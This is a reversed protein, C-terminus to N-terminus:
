YEYDDPLTYYTGYETSYGEYNDAIYKAESSSIYNEVPKDGGHSSWYKKKGTGVVKGINKDIYKTAYNAAKELSDIETFNTFGTSDFYKINYVQRGKDDKVLKGTKPNRATRIEDQMNSLDFLCHWHILGASKEGENHLEPVLLYNFRGWKRKLEKLITQMRKRRLENTPYKELNYTITGFHTTKNNWAFETVKKKARRTSRDNNEIERALKEMDSWDSKDIPTNDSNSEHRDWPIRPIFVRPKAHKHRAIKGHKKRKEM